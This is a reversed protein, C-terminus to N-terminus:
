NGHRKRHAGKWHTLREWIWEFMIEGLGVCAGALCVGICVIAWVGFMIGIARLFTM